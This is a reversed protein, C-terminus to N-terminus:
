RDFNQIYSKRLSAINYAAITLYHINSSPFQCYCYQKILLDANFDCILIRKKEIKSTKCSSYTM